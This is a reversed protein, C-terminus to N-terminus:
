PCKNELSVATWWELLPHASGVAGAWPKVDGAAFSALTDSMELAWARAIAVTRPLLLVGDRPRTIRRLHRRSRDMAGVMLAAVVAWV